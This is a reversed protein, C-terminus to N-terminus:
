LLEYHGSAMDNILEWSPCNGVLPTITQQLKLEYCKFIDCVNSIRANSKYINTIQYFINKINFSKFFHQSNNFQKIGNFIYPIQMM